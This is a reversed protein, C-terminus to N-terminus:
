GKVILETASIATGAVVSPNGATESLTGNTQVYYKQGATLGSQERTISGSLEVSADAGNAYSSDAFGIFNEATINTNSYAPQYVFGYINSGVIYSILTKQENEDFSAKVFETTSAQFEVATDFTISTGSITGFNRYGDSGDGSDRYAIVVKKALTDYSMDNHFIGSSVFVTATGFSISTGSVTGVKATGYSSNNTDSYSLVVKNDDPSYVLRTNAVTNSSFDVESGFSISTGSVTGVRATGDSTTIDEYAFVVKGSNADYVADKNELRGSSALVGTGFSISTGSITGVYVYGYYPSAAQTMFIVNKQAVPDYVAAIEQNTANESGIQVKTGLTVTTGSVTAVVAKTDSGTQVTYAVAFKGANEDYCIGVKDGASTEIVVPTGATITTGSITVAKLTTYNSNNLDYYGVLHAGGGYAVELSYAQSSQITTESGVTESGSSGAIAAITGASEIICPDGSAIAGNAVATFERKPKIDGIAKM